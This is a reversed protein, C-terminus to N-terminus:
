TILVHVPRSIHVLLYHNRLTVYPVPIYSKVLSILLFYPTVTNFIFISVQVIYRHNEPLAM